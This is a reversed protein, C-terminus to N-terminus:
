KNKMPRGDRRVQTVGRLPSPNDAFFDAFFDPTDFM